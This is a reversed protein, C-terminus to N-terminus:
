ATRLAGIVTLHPLDIQLSLDGDPINNFHFEGMDDMSTSELREGNRLLHFHAIERTENGSRTLMQGLMQRHHHEGWIKLHIDFNEARLVLQRAANAAGRAGAFAPQQFSDFVVSAVVRRLGANAPAPAPSFIHFARKLVSSPADQLHSRTLDAQLKRWEAVDKSCTGCTAFHNEWLEVQAPELRGDVLEVAKETSIHM